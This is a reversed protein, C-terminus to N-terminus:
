QKVLVVRRNRARGDDTTNPAIPQTDGLGVASLRAADIGKSTLWGAVAAARSNSLKLNAAKDGVNDTHGEVRLKWDPNASLVAFVDNLVADSAPNITAQGTAFTIGYVDLKGSRAIVDSMAQASATMQETMAQVLVATQDYGPFENWGSGTLQIWQAGKRGVVSPETAGETKGTFVITYGAKRLAAEGDTRRVGEGRDQEPHDVGLRIGQGRLAHHRM